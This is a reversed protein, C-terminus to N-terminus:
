LTRVLAEEVIVSDKLIHIQPKQKWLREIVSSIQYPQCLYIYKKQAMYNLFYNHRRNVKSRFVIVYRGSAAAESVMSISEPSVIVIQSKALIGGVAFPLNRENAIILFKCPPYSKFEQKVLEEIEKSTRRSTTVLIQGDLRGLSAKLQNIIQRFVHRSLQFDRTDGGILFGIVLKKSTQAYFDLDAASSALHEEDILNLAGETVTVNKRKPPRDHKPMVVLDFRRTSLISPRMIVISKALNERSVIFNIAALSSGCSIVIDPKLSCLRRYTNEELLKKLCWLCGQCRYKGSLCCAFMLCYRSFQGKGQRGQRAPLRAAPLFKVELIEINANIGKDKLCGAAVKLLSQSQRLHGIKGDSLVLINKEKTYKWIKYSWLYEKPYKVIYREFTQVLRGLNDRIDIDENGTKKIELPPEIIVKLHPGRQRLYFAPIITAGYKLALRIAGSPMSADKGFFKVLAGSRGGQDVTMGIAENNKLVQILQRTQNQRQIVRTGKQSRYLNLLRNLRPYRQERVFFNFTFGLHAAIVNSLEWNGEHMAVIIVGKGKKFGEKIHELGEFEIYKIIYAQDILPILFIEILNQGFTRYFDKTLKRLQAPMLKDGVAAKINSYAIAKHKLDFYYFLEGFCAGLAFSVGLPLKRILPGYVRFLICSLYDIISDKKM